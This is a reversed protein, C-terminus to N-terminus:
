FEVSLFGEADSQSSAAGGASPERKFDTADLWRGAVDFLRARNAASTFSHDCPVFYELTLRDGFDIDPCADFLQTRYNHQYDV